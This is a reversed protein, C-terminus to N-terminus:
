FFHKQKTINTEENQKRASGGDAIKIVVCEGLYGAKNRVPASGVTIAKAEDVSVAIIDEYRPM